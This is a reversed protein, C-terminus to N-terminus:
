IEEVETYGLPITSSFVTFVDFDFKVPKNFIVKEAGGDVRFYQTVGGSGDDCHFVIDNNDSTNRINLNGTNNDLYTDNGNHYASFDNGGTGLKLGISDLLNLPKSRIM